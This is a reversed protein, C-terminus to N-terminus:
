SIVHGLGLTYVDWDQASSGPHQLAKGYSPNCGLFVTDYLTPLLGVIRGAWATGMDHMFLRHWAHGSFAMRMGHM